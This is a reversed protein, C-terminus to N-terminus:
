RRSFDILDDSVASGDRVVLVGCHLNHGPVWVLPYWKVIGLSESRLDIKSMLVAQSPLDSLRPRPEDKGPKDQIDNALKMIPGHDPSDVKIVTSERLSKTFINLPRLQGRVPWLLNEFATFSGLQSFCVPLTTASLSTWDIMFKDEDFSPTLVGSDIHQQQKM